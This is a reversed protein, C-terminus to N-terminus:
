TRPNLVLPRFRVQPSPEEDSNWKISRLVVPDVNSGKFYVDVKGELIIHLDQRNNPNPPDLSSPAQVVLPRYGLDLSPSEGTIARRM